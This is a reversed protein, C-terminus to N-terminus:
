RAGFHAGGGGCQTSLVSCQTGRGGASGGRESACTEASRGGQDWAWRWLGLLGARRDRGDVRWERLDVREGCARGQFRNASSLLLCVGHAADELLRRAGGLLLGIFAVDYDGRLGSLISGRPNATPKRRASRSPWKDRGDGFAWPAPLERLWPRLGQFRGGLFDEQPRYPRGNM